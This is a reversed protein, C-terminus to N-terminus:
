AYKHIVFKLPFQIIYLFLNMIINNKNNIFTFESLDSVVIDFSLHFTNMIKHLPLAIM